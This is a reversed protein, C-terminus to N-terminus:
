VHQALILADSSKASLPVHQFHDQMEILGPCNKPFVKSGYRPITSLFPMNLWKIPRLM